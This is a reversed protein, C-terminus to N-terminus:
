PKRKHSSSLPFLQTNIQYVRGTSEEDGGLTLAEKWVAELREKVYKYRRPSLSVTAARVDREKSDFRGISEGALSIVQRHYNAIATSLVESPTSVSQESQVWRRDTEDRRILGLAELRQIGRRVRDISV